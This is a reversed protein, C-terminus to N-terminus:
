FDFDFSDENNQSNENFSINQCNSEFRKVLYYLDNSYTIFLNEKSRTMAVMFLTEEEYPSIYLNSSMFPLFVNDFDM